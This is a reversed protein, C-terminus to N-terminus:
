RVLAVKVGWAACFSMLVPGERAGNVARVHVDVKGHPSRVSLNPRVLKGLFEIEEVRETNQDKLLRKKKEKRAKPQSLSLSSSSSSSPFSSNSFFSLPLLSPYGPFLLLLRYLQVAVLLTVDRRDDM